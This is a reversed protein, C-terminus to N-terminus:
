LLILAQIRSGIDGTGALITEVGQENITMGKMNRNIHTRLWKKIPIMMDPVDSTYGHAQM